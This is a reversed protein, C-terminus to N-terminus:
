TTRKWIYVALYPPINNHSQNNGFSISLMGPRRAGVNNAWATPYTYEENTGSMSFIGSAGTSTVETNSEAWVYGSQAAGELHPLENAILTHTAEGGTTGAAYTTGAAILFTDSIREWTGGFLTAPNTSNVSLYISGVPYILNILNSQTAFYDLQAGTHTSVYNAM